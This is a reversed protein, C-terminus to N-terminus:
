SNQNENKIIPYLILGTGNWYRDQKGEISWKFIIIKSKYHYLKFYNAM